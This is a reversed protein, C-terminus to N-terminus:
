MGSLRKEAICTDDYETGPYVEIIELVALPAAEEPMGRSLYEYLKEDYYNRKTSDEVGGQIVLEIIKQNETDM